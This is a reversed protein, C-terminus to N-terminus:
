NYVQRISFNIRNIGIYRYLQAWERNDVFYSSDVNADESYTFYTENMQDDKLVRTIGHYATRSEKTMIMIDGSKILMAYPKTDKTEDGILFIAPNGFSLSILPAEMNLESRDQHANLTSNLHYYNVIGAEPRYSEYGLLEAIFVSINVVDRPM